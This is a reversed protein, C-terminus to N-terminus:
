REYEAITLKGDKNLDMSKWLHLDELEIKKEGKANPAEADDSSDDDSKEADDAKDADDKTDDDSSIEAEKILEEAKAADDEGVDCNRTNLCKLTRM